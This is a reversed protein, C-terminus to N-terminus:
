NRFLGIGESVIISGVATITLFASLYLGMDIRKSVEVTNVGYEEYSNLLTGPAVAYCIVSVLVIIGVSVLMKIANKPNNILYIASSVLAAILGLLGLGLAIYLGMEAGEYNKGSLIMVFFVLVLVVIAAYYIIKGIKGM